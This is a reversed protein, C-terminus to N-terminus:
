ALRKKRHCIVKGYNKEEEDSDDEDDPEYGDVLEWETWFCGEGNGCHRSYTATDTYLYEWFTIQTDDEYSGDENVPEVSSVLRGTEDYENLTYYEQGRYNRNKIIKKM